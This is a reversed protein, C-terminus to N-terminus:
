ATSIIVGREHANVEGEVTAYRVPEAKRPKVLLVLDRIDIIVPKSQLKSWPIKLKLQGLVGAARSALAHSPHRPHRVLGCPDFHVIFETQHQWPLASYAISVSFICVGTTQSLTRHPPPTWCPSWGGWKLLPPTQTDPIQGLEQSTGPRFNEGGSFDAFFAM